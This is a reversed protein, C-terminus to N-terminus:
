LNSMSCITTIACSVALSVMSSCCSSLQRKFDIPNKKWAVVVKIDKLLVCVCPSQKFRLVALVIYGSPSTIAVM